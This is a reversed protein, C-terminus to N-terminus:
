SSVVTKRDTKRDRTTPPPTVLSKISLATTAVRFDFAAIIRPGTSHWNISPAFKKTGFSSWNALTIQPSAASAESRAHALQIQLEALERTARKESQWSAAALANGLVALVVGCLLYLVWSSM